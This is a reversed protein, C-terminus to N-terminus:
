PLFFVLSNRIWDAIPTWYVGFIVTPVALAALLSTQFRPPLYLEAEREGQLYMMKVIRMYYYLSIVSNLAGVIALWYMKAEIVASFLYFKGIFGATPPLGTLSFLFIAMTVGLYPAKFGLGGYEEIDETGFKNKISIVVFFAGLQMFLYVVVYFMVAYIGSQSLVPIGMLIYGAHAISSYALLRKVNSQQIALVNGLTMTIAALGAMVEQWPLGELSQWVSAAFVDTGSFLTNFVRILLAFGAAKPGVSLLATIPTPAGEYVDPTWFHFPVASIKYGFGATIMVIAVTLTLTGGNLVALSERIEFLKTTGTLGFLLSFGYLMIGSSFAGYIVYKLSAETSRVQTKLYGALIFSVISVVEISLYIMILDVSSAMLFMGLTMATILVYYEGTRVSKLEDTKLSILIIVTTALLFVFKFMRAFPDIVITGMFLTISEGAPTLFLALAAIALGAIVWFGVRFSQERQYFLDAIIGILMTGVLVLEPIFLKISQFNDM